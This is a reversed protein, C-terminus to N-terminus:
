RMSGRGSAEREIYLYLQRPCGVYRRVICVCQNYLGHLLSSIMEGPAAQHPSEERVPWGALGTM